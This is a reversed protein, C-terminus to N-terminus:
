PHFQAFVRGEVTVVMWEHPEPFRGAEAINQGEVARESRLVEITDTVVAGMEMQAREFIEYLQALGAAVLETDGAYAM